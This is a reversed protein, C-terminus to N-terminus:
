CVKVPVSSGWSPRPANLLPSALPTTMELPPYKQLFIVPVQHQGSCFRVYLFKYNQFRWRYSAALINFVLLKPARRAGVEQSHGKPGAKPGEPRSSLTRWARRASLGHSGRGRRRGDRSGFHNIWQVRPHPLPGVSPCPTELLLIFKNLTWIKDNKLLCHLGVM